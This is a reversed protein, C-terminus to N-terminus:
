TKAGPYDALGSGSVTPIFTRPVTMMLTSIMQIAGSYVARAQASMSDSWGHIYSVLQGRAGASRRKKRGTSAPANIVEESHSSKKNTKKAIKETKIRLNM